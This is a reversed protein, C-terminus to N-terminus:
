FNFGHWTKGPFSWLALTGHLQLWGNVGCHWLAMRDMDGNSSLGTVRLVFHEVGKM